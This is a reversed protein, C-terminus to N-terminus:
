NRNKNPLLPTSGGKAVSSSVTICPILTTSAPHYLVTAHWDRVVALVRSHQPEGALMVSIKQNTENCGITTVKGKLAGATM